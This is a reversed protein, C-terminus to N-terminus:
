STMHVIFQVQRVAMMRKAGKMMNKWGKDVIKAQTSDFYSLCSTWPHVSNSDVNYNKRCGSAVSPVIMKGTKSNQWWAEQKGGTFPISETTFIVIPLSEVVQDYNYAM